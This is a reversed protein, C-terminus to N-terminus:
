MCMFKCMCVYQYMMNICLSWSMEFIFFYFGYIIHLIVQNDKEKASLSPPTPPAAEFFVAVCGMALAAIAAECIMLQMM